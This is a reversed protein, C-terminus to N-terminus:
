EVIRIEIAGAALARALACATEDGQSLRPGGNSAQVNQGQTRTENACGIRRIAITGQAIQLM